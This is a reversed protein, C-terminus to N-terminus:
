SRKRARVRKRPAAMVEDLTEFRLPPFLEKFDDEARLAFAVHVLSALSIEGTREFRKISGLSVGSRQALVEQTMNEHLRRDRARSAVSTLIDSPSLLSLMNDKFAM